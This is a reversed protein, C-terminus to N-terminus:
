AAADGWFIYGYSYNPRYADNKRCSIDDLSLKSLNEPDFQLKIGGKPMAEFLIWEIPKGSGAHPDIVRIELERYKTKMDSPKFNLQFWDIETYKYAVKVTETNGISGGVIQKITGDVKDEYWDTDQIYKETLTSNYVIPELTPDLNYGTLQIYNLSGSEYPAFTLTEVLYARCTWTVTNDVVTEGVTTPWTPETEAHSTGGATAEYIYGNLVTPEVFAGESYTEGVEWESPNQWYTTKVDGEVNSLIDSDMGAAFLWNQPRRVEYLETGASVKDRVKKKGRRVQIGGEGATFFENYEMEMGVKTNKTSGVTVGGVKVTSPDGLLCETFSKAM